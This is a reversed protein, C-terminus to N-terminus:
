MGVVTRLTVPPSYYMTGNNIALPQRAAVTVLKGWSTGAPGVTQINWRVEYRVQGGGPACMVYTASYNPVAAATFDIDGPSFAPMNPPDPELAAGGAATTITLPNGTCDTIQLTPDSNPRASAIEELITQAVNASTTDMRMSGNRGMGIVVMALGGIMAIAMIGVAIMMELLSFGQISRQKGTQNVRRNM